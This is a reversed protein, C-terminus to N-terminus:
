RIIYYYIVYLWHMTSDWYRAGGDLSRSLSVEAAATTGKAPNAISSHSCSAEDIPPYQWAIM